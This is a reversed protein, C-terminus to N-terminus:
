AKILLFDHFSFVTRSYSFFSFGLKLINDVARMQRCLLFSFNQLDIFASSISCIPCNKGTPRGDVDLCLSRRAGICKITPWYRSLHQLYLSQELPDGIPVYHGIRRTSNDSARHCGTDLRRIRFQNCITVESESDIFNSPIISFCCIYYFFIIVTINSLLVNVNQCPARLLIVKIM